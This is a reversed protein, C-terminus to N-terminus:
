DAWWSILNRVRRNSLDLNSFVNELCICLYFIRKFHSDSRLVSCPNKKNTRCIGRTSRATSSPATSCELVPRVGARQRWTAWTIDERVGHVCEYEVSTTKTSHKYMWFLKQRVCTLGLDTRNWNMRKRSSNVINESSTASSFVFQQGEFHSAVSYLLIGFTGHFCLIVLALM